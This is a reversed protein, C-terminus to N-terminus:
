TKSGRPSTAVKKDIIDRKEKAHPFLANINIQIALKAQTNRGRLIALLNEVYIQEVDTLVYKGVVSKVPPRDTSRKQRRGPDSLESIKHMLESKFPNGLSEELFTQRYKGVGKRGKLIDNLDSPSWGLIKALENQRLRQKSMHARLAGVIAKEIITLTKM